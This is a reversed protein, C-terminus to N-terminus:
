KTVNFEIDFLWSQLEIDGFGRVVNIEIKPFHINLHCVKIKNLFVFDSNKM